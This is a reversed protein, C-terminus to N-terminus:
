KKRPLLLNILGIVFLFPWMVAIVTHSHEDEQGPADVVVEHLVVFFVIVVSLYVTAVYITAELVPNM